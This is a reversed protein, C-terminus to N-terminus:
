LYEILEGKGPLNMFGRGRSDKKNSIKKPDMAQLM